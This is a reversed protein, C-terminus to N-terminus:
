RQGRAASLFRRQYSVVQSASAFRALYGPEATVVVRGAMDAFEPETLLRDIDPYMAEGELSCVILRTDPLDAQRLVRLNHRVGDLGDAGEHDDIRRSIVARRAIAVAVEVPADVEDGSLADVGVLYDRLEVLAEADDRGRELLEAMRRTQALRNRIFSNIFAPRAQLALRAQYPEFMLTFNVRFGHERLRLALRHGAFAEEPSATDWRRRLRKDGTLLEGANAASVPGTHPVKIVTRWEGLIDRMQECEALVRGFDPEFPDDLEVSVDCGPGLIRAIETMVEDRTSYRHEVNARPNNIFLDYIIGPNCTLNAILPAVPELEYPNATDASFLMPTPRPVGDADQGIDRVLDASLLGDAALRWVVRFGAPLHGPPVAFYDIVRSFEATVGLQRGYRLAQAFTEETLPLRSLRGVLEEEGSVPPLGLSAVEFAIGCSTAM